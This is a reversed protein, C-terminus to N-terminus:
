DQHGRNAQKKRGGQRGITLFPVLFVALVAGGLSVWFTAQYPRYRVAGPGQAAGGATNYISTQIGLGVTAVLRTATNFLGGAVSQQESPLSSMVYMNTVTFELDQSLVSFLLAPFAIAWFSISTYLASFLASAIVASVAGIIMIVRNSVRHMIMAALINVLIGGIGAPLLHVAVMLPSLRNIRQWLLSLWFLNGAFGYFGLCLVAVVLTFNRDKWVRLPMLPYRFVSQWYIFGAILVLGVVLLAIVYPTRWGHPADGALTLSATFMAIGSVALLAGLLDFKLFTDMNLGGLSQESDPPTTWLAAFFFFAYIVAMVWFAARWSSVQMTVGSIFAGLVFGVPNGGSFCAFARNKRRSPRDYVAGLKGIAPPVSAASSLGLLGCFIDLFYANTAFGTILLCISFFALSCLFLLRRGFLDAVRGFFLLFTGAALTQAASIWTVEAATMNLDEGISNTLCLIAGTFISSQGVAITTTLVFLCEQFFSSFCAPRTGHPDSETPALSTGISTTPEVKPFDLAQTRAEVDPDQSPHAQTSQKEM